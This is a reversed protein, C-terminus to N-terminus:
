RKREAEKNERYKKRAREYRREKAALKRAPATRAREEKRLRAAEKAPWTLKHLVRDLVASAVEVESRGLPDPFARDPVPPRPKPQIRTADLMARIDVFRSLYSKGPRYVALKGRRALRKLTDATICADPPFATRAIEDLTRFTEDTWDISDAM